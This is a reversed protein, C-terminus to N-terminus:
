EGDPLIRKKSDHFVYKDGRCVCKIYEYPFDLNDYLTAEQLIVPAKSKIKLLLSENEKAETVFFIEDKYAPYTSRNAKLIDCIIPFLLKDDSKEYIQQFLPYPYYSTRLALPQNELFRIGVYELVPNGVPLNLKQALKSDCSLIRKSLTKLHPTKGTRNASEDYSLFEGLNEHLKPQSVFTGKGQVRTLLGLHVLDDLARRVTPRTVLYKEALENESPLRQGPQFEGSSISTAIDEKIRSYYPIFPEKM